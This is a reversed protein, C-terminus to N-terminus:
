KTEVTVALVIPASRDPGKVFEIAKLMASRGPTISLYRMQQGRMMFAFESKPVDVRRIYDAFHVGNKLSHDETKGDAYHIRVILAVANEKSYPYGWGSVGSLMHIARAPLSCELMASRPMKASLPGNASYLMIVNPRAKEGPDVFHFPVGKVIRPKWAPLILREITSETSYFMGRTSTITAAKEMALPVFKGRATLFELLDILEEQKLQKEFGDPMLSKKSAILSDIDDREVVLKKGETNFLEITTRTESALLGNLVKGKKTEVTYVRYNGEVARSPDLIDILLHEKTHAAVGSLDPGIKAGEGSHTHCLACHKKFHAKGRAVDGTKKLLPLFEDVVRQRDANPLGGGKTLLAKARAAIQRDPHSALAQKQDLPLEGFTLTGKEVADLFQRTLEARSLLISLAAARAQPTFTAMRKLLLGGLAPSPSDAVVNLIGANLQPSSRPTIQALFQDLLKVDGPQFEILQQAAGLRQADSQKADLFTTLLSRKVEASQKEFATSGMAKALQMLQARSSAPLKPLLKVLGADLDAALKVYTGKPWGKALGALIAQTTASQGDTMAGLISYVSETPGRRAYNEAVVRVIAIGNAPLKPNAVAVAHIFAFSHQAAAITLADPIWRDDLNEPRALAKVLHHGTDRAGPGESIRLLAALRVHPDRDDLFGSAMAPGMRTASLNLAATRRVAASRHRIIGAATEGMLQDGAGLGHLTWLCHMVGGNFGIEDVSADAALKLLAPVVDKKGREILLRQAHKRWFLNDSKLAAVMQAPTKLPPSGVAKRGHADPTKMVLRYIRGHVKDRLPTVFANGKGNKFGPPTPNHQVIYNYWDIVWVNGDPGVEAMIPASWEDDSALLNWSNRATFNSGDKNLVFSAILHGTPETVFAVRNWYEKPYTRATYLAHGAAATFGGHWDVQRVKDTIPYFKNSTAITPLVSASLGRVKEYYRNPIPMFVSPNGNATSGFLLGEESFGVGWSNNSTSRLFELKTCKAGSAGPASAGPEASLKFRFFGQGFQHNEGGVTGNFGSYGVIGYYWGDFGYHLNSPGAHTDRTGWGTFLIKREDCVDNGKTSRLFLTHPASLVVVGGHAFAFGTPISLGDAFVTFKDAVGDGDTDECIVLRDNGEGQKRLQNPYDVSEAIWLRGREDWNMCIPRKIRPESAYLKLEFDTPHVFHKMSEAPELPLQMKTLPGTRPGVRPAYHPIKADKYEFPKVDKRLATMPPRFGISWRSRMKGGAAWRIGRAMLDHFGANSWTRQDHGWATYFVRGNGHTRVWTWPEKGRYELVTRDTPNHKAHVYTEDFSEFATFGNMIPHEPEAITTRVTGAGHSKFQAGVLAIYQTSNGFCASACHIPIFGKGSAIYELLVKEQDPTIRTHNAYIVLGDYRSLTRANLSALNSTYDLEIGRKALIPQLQRFRLEPQHHGNDGLFLIAIPAAQAHVTSPILVCWALIALLSRPRM